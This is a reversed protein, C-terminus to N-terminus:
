MFDTLGADGLVPAGLVLVLTWLMVVFGSGALTSHLTNPTPTHACPEWTLQPM